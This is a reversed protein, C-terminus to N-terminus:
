DAKGTLKRIFEVESPDFATGDARYIDHFWVKPTPANEPTDWAFITNTKGSVFGWNIAAVHERKFIPLCDKFTSGQKRAMYETCIVPRDFKKMEAIRKETEGPPSYVHFTIVDSHESQFKNLEDFKASWNWMGASVPQSPNAARAWEFVKTLLPLSKVEENSNGPENYLDWMLIRDDKGFTKLIDTVYNQLPDWTTPDNVMRRGPSQMWGSNHVSPKPEPQKGVHPDENWCDDFFVFLPRIHHKATITLFEDMRKKFGEPDAQWAKDHLFVRLTNFGLGEAWGLEEDITKPDFTDAQWMELQNIATRPIYNCGILWPQKAYWEDATQKSWRGNDDAARTTSGMFLLCFLVALIRHMM